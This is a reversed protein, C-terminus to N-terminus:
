FNNSTLPSGNDLSILSNETFEPNTKSGINEFFMLRPQDFTGLMLDLDGDDDYDFLSPSLAGETYNVISTSTGILKGDALLKVPAKFSTIESMSIGTFLLLLLIIKRM